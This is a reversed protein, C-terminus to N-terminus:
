TKLRDSRVQLWVWCSMVVLLANAKDYHLTASATGEAVYAALLAAGLLATEHQRKWPKLILARISYALTLVLVMLGLLGGEVLTQM